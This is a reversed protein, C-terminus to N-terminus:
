RKFLWCGNTIVSRWMYIASSALRSFFRRLDVAKAALLGSVPQLSSRNLVAAAGAHRHQADLPWSRPSPRPRTPPPTSTARICPALGIKASMRCACFIFAAKLWLPNLQSAAGTMRSVVFGTYHCCWARFPQSFLHRRFSFWASRFSFLYKWVAELSGEHPLFLLLPVLSFTTLEMVVWLLAFQQVILVLTNALLYFNLAPYYLRRSREYEVGQMENCSDRSYLVLRYRM